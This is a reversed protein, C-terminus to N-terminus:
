DEFVAVEQLLNEDILIRKEAVNVTPIVRKLAPVMVTGKATDFVYVDVPCDTLIDRLVGFSTGTSDYATCGILDCIFNEDAGLKVADKRLVYLKKNRLTEAADKNTIGEIKLYVMGAHVRVCHMKVNRHSPADEIFISKLDQFRNLDDTYPKVKVEGMVGQPKVIEGVLLYDSLM